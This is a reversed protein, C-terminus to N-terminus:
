DGTLSCAVLGVEHEARIRATWGRLDRQREENERRAEDERHAKEREKERRARMRAEFGAKTLRQRRKEKLGDEDLQMMCPLSCFLLCTGPSAAVQDDPVDALPFSPEEQFVIFCYTSLIGLCFVFLRVTVDEGEMEKKRAKKVSM